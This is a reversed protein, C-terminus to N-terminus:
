MLPQWIETGPKRGTLVELISFLYDNEKQGSDEMMKKFAMNSAPFLSTLSFKWQGQEKYFHFYLPVKQGSAVLQGKAFGKNVTVDGITNNSVSSKGVMGKKIAYVFLGKGDMEM